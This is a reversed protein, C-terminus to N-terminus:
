RYMWVRMMSLLKETNVPKALYDSAGAKICTARDGKMAKATLAIIPLEGFRERARIQRMAEYGDMEPMMIDMLIIDVSDDEALQDLQELAERGNSATMVQMRKEQLVASLSFINRMDDDVLLATRGDFVAEPDHLMRITQRQQAPLDSEVRHLFLATDDLLREPSRANKIIISQAYQDLAAREDPELERGTYIVVPVQRIEQQTRLSELLELGNMDPLGLDLVICDFSQRALVELADSGTQAIVTEVDGNGILQRLSEVQVPDDEILLLQKVPRDIVHLIRDFAAQMQGMSVPKTLFGIAGSKMADLMTDQASMFHIPIHRTNTREKLTAMVQWGDINPLGIDLVIASPQYYDAFHLGTEGDEAVLVKFGRERAFDAVIRAFRQDDEIILLSREGPTLGNRDDQITTPSPQPDAGSSEKVSTVSDTPTAPTAPVVPTSGPDHALAPPPESAPETPPAMSLQAPIVLTFASGRNEESRVHVEGGLLKALERSISLGLGTGGYKRTTSSDAQVFPDFLEAIKEPKIGIGTDCVSFRIEIDHANLREPEASVTISGQGTFKIANRILNILIQELRS